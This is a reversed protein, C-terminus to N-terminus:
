EYLTIINMRPNWGMGQQAPQQFFRNKLNVPRMQQNLQTVPQFQPHQINQSPVMAHNQYLVRTQPYSLMPRQNFYNNSNWNPNNMNQLPSTRRYVENRPHYSKGFAAELKKILRRTGLWRTGLKQNYIKIQHVHIYWKGRKLRDSPQTWQFNRDERTPIIKTRWSNM